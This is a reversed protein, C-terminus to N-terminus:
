SEGLSGKNGYAVDYGELIEVKLLKSADWFLVHYDCM